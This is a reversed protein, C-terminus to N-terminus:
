AAGLSHGTCLIKSVKNYTFIKEVASMINKENSHYDAMFGTHVYCGSCGKYPEMVFTLDSIWNQTNSSGRWSTILTKTSADYGVYGAVLTKPNEIYTVFTLNGYKTGAVCTWSEICQKPCFAISALTAYRISM